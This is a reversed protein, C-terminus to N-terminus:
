RLGLRLGVGFSRPPAPFGLVEEYRADLLNTVRGFVELARTAHWAGGAGLTTYGRAPYLGGFAGYTPDVDLTRGRTGITFFADARKGQWRAQVFGQHRPRRILPDGVTFPPPAVGLRDIALVESDLYTYAVTGSFGLSSRASASAELGRTRANSINDSQYQSVTTLLPGVTVILDDYRNYFFTADLLVRGKVLSQEIGAEVSRTREPKLGPNNTFAIEFADPPRIGLGASGRLRTWDGRGTVPRLLWSGSLRPTVATVTDVALDPRPTFANPDADLQDRRIIEVRTGATVFTRGADYRLEGFASTLRREVPTPLSGPGTIFTSTARERLWEAGATAGLASTLIVDSQARMALRRSSSETPGFADVFDSSLRFANLSVSPRVRGFTHSLSAGALAVRDRGRAVTDIGFYTGGPDSGYAGPYGRESREFRSTLAFRTPGDYGLGASVHEARWDDNTVRGAAFTRGNLGNSTQREGGASVRWRALPLVAGASLRDPLCITGCDPRAGRSSVASTAEFAPGADARTIVNVVGGIAAGSWLASQPGRVVEIREIQGTTFRGFDFGGGFSNVPVGDIAVATFDSEGGRSFLSTVAGEVGTRAVAMGPVTRLAEAVTRQQYAELDHRTIVSTTAPTRSLPLDVQAASVVVAESVASVQLHLTVRAVADQALDVRAPAARFGERVVHLEYARPTLGAVEFAGLDNSTVRAVVENQATVIVEAGSVVAGDPDVVTGGISSGAAVATASALVLFWGFWLFGM